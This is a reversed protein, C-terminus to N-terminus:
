LFSNIVTVATTYVMAVVGCVIFVIDGAKVWKNEAVGMYHLLPPYIYVLPVCAFSGILAVFRDLNAAGGISVAICLLVLFTRFANKKWKGWTSNKGSLNGFLKAELIRVAPFLQVPTGVLVAMAYVFQVANVLRSDQPFNSIVEIKTLSGFTMYCLIGVSGFILTILTMIIYLLGEFKEPQAMSNQIPLILGIGEFTFIAAGITLTYHNPNFLTVSDAIGHQSLFHIDYYWIYVLGLVIFIDAIMAAPGLKSINRILAMPILILLQLAILDRTSLPADDGPSVADAFAKLNDAVFVTGACVFGLQSITISSLIVARMKRGGIAEGLEGYGGSYRAKCKLLLHFALTTILAVLFLTISSFLIGGNQFAKPLFMIGTGIFAKLLTFFTRTVGADGPRQARRKTSKRRGLLPRREGSGDQADEEVDTETEEDSDSEELDEGAFNGYLELFEVFNRAVPVRRPNLPHLDGRKQQVYQRRFGQPLLQESIPMDAAGDNGTFEPGSFTKARQHHNPRNRADIKYLDRHIDGGQLRLSSQVPGGDEDVAGDFTYGAPLHDDLIEAAQPQEDQVANIAPSDAM